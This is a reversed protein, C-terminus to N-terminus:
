RNVPIRFDVRDGPSVIAPDSLFGRGALFDVEIRLDSARWPTRFTASSKATVSGLRRRDGNWRVYVRADNANDNRIDLIVETSNENGATWGRPERSSLLGCGSLAALWVTLFLVPLVRGLTFSQMKSAPM